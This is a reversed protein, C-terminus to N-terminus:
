VPGDGKGGVIMITAGMIEERLGVCEGFRAARAERRDTAASELDQELGVPRKAGVFNQITEGLVAVAVLWRDGIAGEVKQDLLPERVADTAQVGEHGAGVGAFRV